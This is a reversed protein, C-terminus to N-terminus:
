DSLIRGSYRRRRMTLMCSHRMNRHYFLLDLYYNDNDIIMRKQRALFAFDTGMELIFKQLESLVANELENESYTDDLDLFDLVYPDKLTLDLSMENNEGLLELDKIITQEPKRSIATREFLMSNVRGQLVRVGWKENICMQIYFERKLPDEIKILEIFHSWTLQRLLTAVIRYRSWTLKQSLTAFIRAEQFVTYLGLMGSLSTRSYGKGFAPVSELVPPHLEKFTM